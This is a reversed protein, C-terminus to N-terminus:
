ESDNNLVRLGNRCRDDSITHEPLESCPDDLESESTGRAGRGGLNRNPRNPPVYFVCGLDFAAKTAVGFAELIRDASANETGHKLDHTGGFQNLDTSKQRETWLWDVFGHHLYFIPDNPARFVDSMDGGIYMHPLAHAAEIGDTFNSWADEKTLQDLPAVSWLLPIEGSVSSTFDRRVIHEIPRRADMEKFTGSQIPQEGRQAGGAFGENWIPSMAADAADQAWDWYPLALNPQHKRLANELRLLFLRHWPLFYSGGHAEDNFDIHLQVLHDWESDGSEDRDARLAVIADRWQRRQKPNMDRIEIRERRGNCHLLNEHDNPTSDPTPLPTRSPTASPTSTPTPIPTANGPKEGVSDAGDKGQKGDGDNKDIDKDNDPDQENSPQAEDDVGKGNGAENGDEKGKSTKKPKCKEAHCWMWDGLFGFKCARNNKCIDNSCKYNGKCCNEM